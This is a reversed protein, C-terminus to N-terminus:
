QPLGVRRVLDAFRPDSRLNDVKPDVKLSTLYWSRQNYARDLWAFANDKEGLAVYILAIYYAPVHKQRSRATLEDLVKHAETRRGAVAYAHGLSALPVSIQDEIQRAKELAAIAEPFKRQQVYAHGLMFHITWNNPDLDLAKHLQTIAEDYRHAYYLDWGFLVAPETSIPDLEEARRHEVLAEDTRGLWTLYWGYYAHAPAYKPNLDLARRFEREATPWDWDYWFYVNALEVHADVLEPDLELAKQAAEKAKPSAETDPMTWDLVLNYYYAIGTYPLPYNPDLAVAQHFYDLGKNLEPTSFKFAHYRGKLYLEHAEPNDTYRKALQKQEDESPRLGLKESVAKSIEEQVLIIDSMKRSYHHGWLQSLQAVDVLETQINLDDGRQVVKGMLVARVNLDGGIKRVDAEEGRYRFALSRPVVRLRPLQSLSNILDEAIGDSLYDTNPDGSANTFPLVAISDIAKGRGASHYIWVALGLSALLILSGTWQVTRHRWVPLRAVQKEDSPLALGPWTSAVARGSDIDRKLRRLDARLDSAHQYRVERGKELAKNIIEELKPPLEPNVRAPSTPARDLIANFIVASTNGAFAQRGTAMEYLVAGFSFLDTRADLEEGRAQEPSMYAVTGIAVGPSTLNEEATLTPLASFRVDEAVARGVPALKALGFDLIKAQGRDTVFINEPKIDRHVIGKAHAADLADAIQIGLDLLTETKLSKGEICYKLTRGELFQMALFPQGEHESVEYITCINPHDLASAARAERQFRELAQRDHALEPPLFKLAVSRGLKTDEAEYVVGM